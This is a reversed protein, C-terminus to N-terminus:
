FSTFLIATQKWILLSCMKKFIHEQFQYYTIIIAISSLKGIFKMIFYLHAIQYLFTQQFLLRTIPSPINKVNKM